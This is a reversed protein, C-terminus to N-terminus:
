VQEVLVQLLPLQHTVVLLVPAVVVVIGRSLVGAGVVVGTGVVVTTGNASWM